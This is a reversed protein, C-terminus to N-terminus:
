YVWIVRSAKRRDIDLHIFDKGIGIRDIGIRIAAAIVRYRLRSRGCSVDWALGKLHSSTGSGGVEANHTECRYGSTVLLEEGVDQEVQRHLAEVRPDIWNKKCCPCRFREDRKEM